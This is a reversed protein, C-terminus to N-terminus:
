FLRMEESDVGIEKAVISMDEVLDSFSAHRFNIHGVKRGPRPIKNYWHLFSRETLLHVPPKEVGILNLMGNVEPGSTAGLKLGTIARLHNEFQCSVNTSATWHGSNHVRPALENVIVQDGKLFCEIALVGIYDLSDVLRKAYQQLTAQVAASVNPSPSISYLLIGKRHINETIPYCTVDGYLSRVVILSVERDFDIGEEVIWAGPRGARAFATLDKQDKLVFQNRGDYAQRTSKAFLPFDPYTQQDAQGAQALYTYNATPIGLSDLWQKEQYRDSCVTLAKPNPRVPCYAQLERLLEIDVQEKEVTIVDPMGLKQYLQRPSCGEEHLVIKGLGEICRMERQNSKEVLFSFDMGLRLGTLALMRALQGGGIVAIRM